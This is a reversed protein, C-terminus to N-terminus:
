QYPQHQNRKHFMRVSHLHGTKGLQHIYDSRAPIAFNHEDAAKLIEKMNLLM